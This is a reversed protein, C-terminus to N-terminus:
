VVSGSGQFCENGIFRSGAGQIASFLKYLRHHLGETMSWSGFFGASGRNVDTDDFVDPIQDPFTFSRVSLLQDAHELIM